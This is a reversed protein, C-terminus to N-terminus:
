EPVGPRSHRGRRARVTRARHMDARLRFPLPPPTARVPQGVPPLPRRAHLHDTVGLALWCLGWVGAMVLILQVIV